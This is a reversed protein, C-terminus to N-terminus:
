RVMEVWTGGIPIFQAKTVYEKMREYLKPYKNKVWDYQAAQSAAFKFEPYSEMLTCQTSFSSTIDTTLHLLYVSKILSSVCRRAVKRRTESYPWLWASDIHCHGTAFITHAREGSKKSLFEASIAKAAPWTSRDDTQLANVIKRATEIAQWGRTDNEDLEKSMDLILNLDFFLDWADKDYVALEAIKLTFSKKPDPPALFGGPGPNGFMGCCAMEVYFHFTEGAKASRTLVYDARRDDGKSGNFAQVPQGDVWVAAESESDWIFNVQEGLWMPPITASVAFAM